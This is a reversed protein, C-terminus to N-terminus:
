LGGGWRFQWLVGAAWFDDGSRSYIGNSGYFKISQHRSMSLAVTLGLRAHGLQEGKQGDTTTRGGEYYTADLAGWLAPFFEYILHGQVSYVPDQAFTQGGLFDDNNTFFTVAPILELTVPGWAKSVGLEPKISWRNTGVNLLKTSDYQGLPPTVQLSAGVIIDQQYTPFEDMSIAPAGYFNVSLRLIPDGLGSVKREREEGAVKASGSVKAVPLVAAFKGSLGWVDLSRAYALVGSNVHVKADKIPSSADFAVNGQTYGYGALLFNIGVPTNVYSRPELAQPYVKRAPVVIAIVVPATWLWGVFPALRSPITVKPRIKELIVVVKGPFLAGIVAAGTSLGESITRPLSLLIPWWMRRSALVRCQEIMRAEGVARFSGARVPGADILGRNENGLYEGRGSWRWDGPRKVVKVRVPNLHIYRVLELLYSERDCVIAKYRGQFLHGRHRHARNFRRAYGTLLSQLVRGTPSQQVELLLHFHNSM